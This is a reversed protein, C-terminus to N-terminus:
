DRLVSETLVKPKPSLRDRLARRHRLSHWGWVALLGCLGGLADLLVDWPSGQRNPVFTQHFEDMMAYGVVIVWAVAGTRWKWVRPLGRRPKELARWVLWALVAYEVFHAIKRVVLVVLVVQDESWQPFLWRVVPAIIRSTRQSSAPDGSATFILAMWFVVPLWAKLWDRVRGM